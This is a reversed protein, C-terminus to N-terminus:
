EGHQVEPYGDAQYYIPMSGMGHVFGWEACAGKSALWDKLLFLADCKVLVAFDRVLWSEWSRDTLVPHMGMFATNKHPIHAMWGREMLEAGADEARKINDAIDTRTDASYPGAVYIVPKLIPIM